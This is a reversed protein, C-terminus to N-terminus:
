KSKSDSFSIKRIQPKRRPESAIFLSNILPNAQKVPQEVKPHAEEEDVEDDDEEKEEEEKIDKRSEDILYPYPSRQNDQISQPLGDEITDFPLTDEIQENQGMFVGVKRDRPGAHPM